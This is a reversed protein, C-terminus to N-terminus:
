FFQIIGLAIFCGVTIYPMAPYFKGKESRYFLYALALTAFAVIIYAQLFSATSKLVTGAFLLPFAIDGGGLIANSTKGKTKKETIKPKRISIGAFANSNTQFKALKIMHKSKRVAFIDYFSIIILLMSMSFVNLIPVLIAAIGGYILIETVNHIIINRSKFGTLIAAIIATLLIENRLYPFLSIFLAVFISLLFWFKWFWYAQFKAMVLVLLTALVFPIILLLFSTSENEVEPPEILYLEEFLVTENGSSTADIDIYQSTIDLGVVQAAVFIFLLTLTIKWNHKM